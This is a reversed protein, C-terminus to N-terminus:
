TIKFCVNITANMTIMKFNVCIRIRITKNIKKRQKLILIKDLAKLRNESHNKIKNIEIYRKEESVVTSIFYKGTAM